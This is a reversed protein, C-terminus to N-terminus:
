INDISLGLDRLLAKKIPTGYFNFEEIPVDNGYPKLNEFYKKLKSDGKVSNMFYDNYERLAANTRNEIMSFLEGSSAKGDAILKGIRAKTEAEIKDYEKELESAPKKKYIAEIKEKLEKKEEQSYSHQCAFFMAGFYILTFIKYIQAFQLTRM